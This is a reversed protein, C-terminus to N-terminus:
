FDVDGLVARHLSKFFQQLLARIKGSIQMGHFFRGVFRGDTRRYLRM